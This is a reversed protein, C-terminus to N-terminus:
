VSVRPWIDSWFQLTQEGLWGGFVPRRGGTQGRSTSSAGRAPLIRASERPIRHSCVRGSGAHAPERGRVPLAAADGPHAGQAHRERPRPAPEPLPFKRVLAWGDTQFDFLDQDEVRDRGLYLVPWGDRGQETRTAKITLSRISQDPQLLICSFLDRLSGIAKWEKNVMLHGGPSSPPTPSSFWSMSIRARQLQAPSGIRPAEERRVIISVQRALVPPRGWSALGENIIGPDTLRPTKPTM